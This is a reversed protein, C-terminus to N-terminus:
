RVVRVALISPDPFPTAEGNAWAVANALIQAETLQLEPWDVVIAMESAPARDLGRLLREVETMTLTITRM